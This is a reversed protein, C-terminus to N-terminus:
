KYEFAETILTELWESAAIGDYEWLKPFMSISTLGPITNVENFVFRNQTEINWFDIRALGRLNLAKAVKEGLTKLPQIRNADLRAPIFLSAKSSESYKEDYSYFNETSIEGPTTIQPNDEDGLFGCEVETGHMWEEVLVKTDYQFADILAVSLEAQNKAKNVGIASGLANPKICCPYTILSEIYHITKEPNNIFEKHTVAAYNAVAIGADRVLKKQIDKDMGIVSAVRDCGIYAIEALEFISQIRGDEGNTGHLIPLFCDVHINLCRFVDGALNLDTLGTLPIPYIVSLANKSESHIKPVKGAVITQLDEITYSNFDKTNYEGTLSYFLGSKSIGIPVITYKEPLNKLVFLASRLSIEHETSLGGFLVGM